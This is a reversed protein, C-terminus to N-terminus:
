TVADAGAARLEHAFVRALSNRLKNIAQVRGDEEHVTVPDHERGVSRCALRQSLLQGVDLEFPAAFDDFAGM